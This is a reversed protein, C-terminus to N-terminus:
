LNHQKDTHKFTYHIDRVNTINKMHKMDILNAHTKKINEHKEYYDYTTSGNYEINTKIQTKLVQTKNKNQKAQEHGLLSRKITQRNLTNEIVQQHM